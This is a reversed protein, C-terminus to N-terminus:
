TSATARRSTACSVFAQRLPSTPLLWDSYPSGLALVNAADLQSHEIRYRRDWDGVAHWRFRPNPATVDGVLKALEDRMTKLDDIRWGFGHWLVISARRSRSAPCMTTSCWATSPATAQLLAPHQGRRAAAARGQFPLLKLVAESRFREPEAMAVTVECDPQSALYHALAHNDSQFTTSWFCIRM